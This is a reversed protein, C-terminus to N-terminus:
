DVIEFEAEEDSDFASGVEEHDHSLRDQVEASAQVIFRPIAQHVCAPVKIEEPSWSFKMRNMWLSGCHKKFIVLAKVQARRVATTPNHMDEKICEIFDM